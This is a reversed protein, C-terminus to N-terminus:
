AQEKMFEEHAKLIQERVGKNEVFAMMMRKISRLDDKYKLAAATALVAWAFLVMEIFTIEIM